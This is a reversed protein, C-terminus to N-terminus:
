RNNQYIFQMLKPNLKNSPDTGLKIAFAKLLDSLSDPLQPTGKNKLYLKKQIENCFELISEHIVGREITLSSSFQTRADYDSTSDKGGGYTENRMPPSHGSSNHLASAYASDSFPIERKGSLQVTPLANMNEADYTEAIPSGPLLTKEPTEMNYGQDKLQKVQNRLDLIMQINSVTYPSPPRTCHLFLIDWISYWADHDTISGRGRRAGTRSIDLWQEATVGHYQFNVSLTQCTRIHRSRLTGDHDNVFLQGCRPCYPRQIHRRELHMRVDTIRRLSSQNCHLHTEEDFRFFPCAWVRATTETM